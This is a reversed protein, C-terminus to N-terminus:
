KGEKVVETKTIIDQLGLKDQRYLIMFSSVLVFLTELTGFTTKIIYYADVKLTLSAVLSVITTLISNIIVARIIIDILKLKEGDRKRIKIGMLKKGITQGKNFYQFIIFYASSIILGIITSPYSEKSIEYDLSKIEKQYEEISIEEKTYKNVLDEQEELLKSYNSGNLSAASIIGLIISLLIVDLIYASFRQLFTAKM